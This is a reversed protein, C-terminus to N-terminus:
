QREFGLRNLRGRWVGTGCILWIFNDADATVAIPEETGVLAAPPALVEDTKWTIGNDTSVYFAELATHKGDASPGGCAIVVNDYRFLSLSQLRPCGYLNDDSPNFFIWGVTREDQFLNWVKSWVVSTTDAPAQVAERSGMWLIRENGNPQKYCVAAMDQAPLWRPEDDLNEPDWSNGDVSRCLQGGSLAYLCHSGAAVLRVSRDTAVTTWQGGDASALLTGDTGSVYYTGNLQQLTTFDAQTCGTLSLETWTTPDDAPATAACPVGGRRGLLLLSGDRSILKREDWDQFLPVQGMQKWTFDDADQQHVNVTLTYDRLATGDASVVRLTLPQSFNISDTSSYATWEGTEDTEPRYMLYGACEVTALIAATRTGYPLSDENYILLKQQDITMPYYKADFTVRYTSDKGEATTVHVTRTAYGLAVSSIYCDNSLTYAEEDESCASALLALLLVFLWSSSLNRMRPEYKNNMILHLIVCM